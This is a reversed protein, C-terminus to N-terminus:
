MDRTSQYIGSSVKRVIGRSILFNLYSHLIPQNKFPQQSQVVQRLEQTTHPGPNDYLFTAIIKSRGSLESIQKSLNNDDRQQDVIIRIDRKTIRPNYKSVANLITATLEDEDVVDASSNVSIEINFKTLTAQGM